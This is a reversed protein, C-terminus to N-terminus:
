QVTSKQPTLSWTDVNGINKVHVTQPGDWLLLNKEKEKEKKHKGNVLKHFDDTVHIKGPMCTQEMRAAM